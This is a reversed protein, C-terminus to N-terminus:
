FEIGSVPGSDKIYPHKLSKVESVIDARQKLWEPLGRGTLVLHTSGSDAKDLVHELEERTVLGAGLAYLAEDLVIMDLDLEFWQEVAALLSTARSRHPEFDRRDRYFGAGSAMFRSGLLEALLKQEGAQGPKKMFQGFAVSLGRGLARICQGVAASTKGKGEGTYVIIV